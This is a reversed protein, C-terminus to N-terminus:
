DLHSRVTDQDVVETLGSIEAELQETVKSQILLLTQLTKDTSSRSFVYLISVHLTPILEFVKTWQRRKAWTTPITASRVELFRWKKRDIVSTETLTITHQVVQIGYIKRKLLTQYSASKYTNIQQKLASSTSELQKITDDITHRM